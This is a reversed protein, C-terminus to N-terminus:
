QIVINIKNPDMVEEVVAAASAAAAAVALLHARLRSVPPVLEELEEELGAKDLLRSRCGLAPVLAVVVPVAPDLPAPDLPLAEALAAM